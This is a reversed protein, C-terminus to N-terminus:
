PCLGRWAGFDRDTPSVIAFAGFGTTQCRTTGFRRFRCGLRGAIAALVPPDFDYLHRPMDYGHWYTRWLRADVSDLNPLWMFLRGNRTLLNACDRLVQSPSPVHELVYKLVIANFMDGRRTVLDLTGIVIEGRCRQHAIAAAHASVELGVTQWGLAECAVLLEGTGCGIELLWGTQGVQATRIFRRRIEFATM